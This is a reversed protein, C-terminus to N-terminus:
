RPRRTRPHTLGQGPEQSTGAVSVRDPQKASGPESRLEVVGEDFRARIELQGGLAEVYRSLTSVRVDDEREIRSINPQSVGLADALDGQSAGRLERLEALAIDLEMFRKLAEVREPAGPRKEITEARLDRWRKRGAM